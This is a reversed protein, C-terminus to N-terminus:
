DASAIVVKVVYSLAIDGVRGTLKWCGESPFSVATAWSGRGRVGRVYSYGWNVGLVRMPPSAADLRRGAVTLGPSVDIGTPLWGFKWFISGDREVRSAPM